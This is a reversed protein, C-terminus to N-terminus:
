WLLNHLFRAILPASVYLLTYLLISVFLNLFFVTSFDENTADKKRILGQALGGDILVGSISTFVFLIGIIGFDTPMLVRALIIGIVLQLLQVGFTNVASWTLAGIMNKKLNDGM